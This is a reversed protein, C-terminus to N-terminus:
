PLPWCQKGADLTEQNSTLPGLLSGFHCKGHVWLVWPPMKKLEVGEEIKASSAMWEKFAPDEFIWQATGEERELNELVEAFPPPALWDHIRQFSSDPIFFSIM